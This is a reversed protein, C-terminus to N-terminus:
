FDIIKSLWEFFVSWFDGEPSPNISINIELEDISPVWLNLANVPFDTNILNQAFQLAKKESESIDGFMGYLVMNSIPAYAKRIGKWIRETNLILWTLMKENPMGIEEINIKAKIDEPNMVGILLTEEKQAVLVNPMSPAVSVALVKNWEDVELETVIGEKELANYIANQFQAAAGNKGTFTVYGGFPASIGFFKIDLGLIIEISGSLLDGIDKKAIGFQRAIQLFMAWNLTLDMDGSNMLWVEIDDVDDLFTNGGFVFFPIGKGVMPITLRTERAKELAKEELNRINSMLKSVNSRTKIKWTSNEYALGMEIQLDESTQAIGKSIQMFAVNPFTLDAMSTEADSKIANVVSLISEKTDFTIIKDGEIYVYNDEYFFIGDSDREFECDVFSDDAAKMASLVPEGLSSVLDFLTLKGSKVAEDLAKKGDQLSIIMGGDHIESNADDIVIMLAFERLNSKSLAKLVNGIKTLPDLELYSPLPEIAEFFRSPFLDEILKSADMFRATFRSYSGTEKTIIKPLITLLDAFCVGCSLFVTLFAYIIAKFFRNKM